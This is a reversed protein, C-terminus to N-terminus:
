GRLPEMGLRPSLVPTVHHSQDGRIVYFLPLSTLHFIRHTLIIQVRWRVVINKATVAQQFPLTTRVAKRALYM